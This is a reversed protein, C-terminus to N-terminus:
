VLWYDIEHGNETVLQILNPEAKTVKISPVDDMKITFIHLGTRKPVAKIVIQNGEAYVQKVEAQMVVIMMIDFPKKSKPFPVTLMEDWIGIDHAFDYYIGATTYSAFVRHLAFHMRSHSNSWRGGAVSPNWYPLYVPREWEPNNLITTFPIVKNKQMISVPDLPISHFSRMYPPQFFQKDLMEHEIQKHPFQVKEEATQAFVPSIMIFQLYALCMGIAIQTPLRKM